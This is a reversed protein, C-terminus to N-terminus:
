ETSLGVNEDLWVQLPEAAHLFEVVRRKAAPTALWGAAPWDQWAILGKYRLLDIRPHDKPYGKPASKLSEVGGVEIHKATLRDVIDGLEVGRGDDDVARRYRDLQDPAMGYYGRAATLGDASFRVYGGGELTAYITTKYPSKDKSFRVDRYPRFIRGQGFEGSLEDLLEAMPGHVSADFVARHATWYAKTNDAELGRFFEAAEPPWGSFAM